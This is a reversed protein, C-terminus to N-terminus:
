ENLSLEKVNENIFGKKVILLILCTM